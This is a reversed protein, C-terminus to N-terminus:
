KCNIVEQTQSNCIPLCSQRQVRTGESSNLLIGGSSPCTRSLLRSLDSLMGTLENLVTTSTSLFTLTRLQELADRCKRAATNLNNGSDDEEEMSQRHVMDEDEQQQSLSSHVPFLESGEGLRDLAADSIQLNLCETDAVFLPHERYVSPLSSWSVDDCHRFVAMFHKCPLHSNAFMRCECTPMREEDGIHLAYWTTNDSGRVRYSGCDVRTVMDATIETAKSEVSQMHQIFYPPRNHFEPPVNHHGTRWGHCM